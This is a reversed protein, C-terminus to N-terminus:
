DKRSFVNRALTYISMKAYGRSGRIRNPDTPSDKGSRTYVSYVPLVADGPMARSFSLPRLVYTDFYGGCWGSRSLQRNTRLQYSGILHGDGYGDPGFLLLDPQCHKRVIAALEYEGHRIFWNHMVYLSRDSILTKQYFPRIDFGDLYDAGCSERFRGAHFSKSKNLRFGLHQLVEELTPYCVAPIIIDDGYVAVDEFNSLGHYSMCGSVIGFFLLTELEFTFGNGMSSFKELRYTSKPTMRGSMMQVDIIEQTVSEPLVVDGSRLRSLTEAWEYPLLSWVLEYSICDSAMSLDVTALSGDVSGRRALQQNKSQDSLDINFRTLRSRIYSGFGKQFFSNLLPEVVISRDTKANKPVFMVKGPVVSVDVIFSEEKVGLDHLAMWAPTESLFEHVTPSLNASCELPASLKVRPNAKASKVNTNAGPGFSFPLHELSPIEGLVAAIKRTAVHLVHHVMPSVIHPKRNCYHLRRNTELCMRESEVFREAAASETSRESYRLFDSKQVLALIQRSYIADLVSLGDYSLDLDMLYSLDTSITDPQVRQLRTNLEAAVPGGLVACMQSLDRIISLSEESSRPSIWDSKKRSSRTVTEKAEKM